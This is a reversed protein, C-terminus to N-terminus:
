TITAGPPLLRNVMKLLLVFSVIAALSLRSGDRRGDKRTHSGKRSNASRRLTHPQPHDDEAPLLGCM